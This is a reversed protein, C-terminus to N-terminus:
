YKSTVDDEDEKKIEQIRQYLVTIAGGLLVLVIIISVIKFFPGIMSAGGINVIIWILYAALLLVVIIPAVVRKFVKM